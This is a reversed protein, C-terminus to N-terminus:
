TETLAVRGAQRADGVLKGAGHWLLLVVLVSAYGDVAYHWGLHVSGLFILIGYAAFVVGLPKWTRWGVLAYLTVMAVHMSPMASIRIFPNATNTAYATWLWEQTEIAFLPHNAHVSTLYSMLPAYRSGDLGLSGLFCPGASSFAIAFATGVVIWCLAFTVLFQRRLAWRSSWAQWTLVVPVLPLWTYYTHDLLVTLWPHGLLPHILRWPDTGLHLAADVRSFRADWGFPNLLPIAAKWSGFATLFVPSVLSVTAVALLRRRNLMEFRCRRWAARWDGWDLHGLTREGESLIVGFRWALAVPLALMVFIPTLLYGLVFRMRGMMGPVIGGWDVVLGAAVYAAILGLFIGHERLFGPRVDPSPTWPSPAAAKAATLEISPAPVTLDAASHPAQGSGM